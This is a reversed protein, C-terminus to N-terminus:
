TETRLRRVEAIIRPLNEPANLGGLEAVACGNIAMDPSDTEFFLRDEPVRRALERVRTSRENLVAPGITICVGLEEYERWIELSCSAGHILIQPLKGSYARLVEAMESHAKVCHISVRRNYKEALDLQESFVKMQVERHPRLNDLGIEGVGAEPNAALLSELHDLWDDRGPEGVHWPHLGCSADVGAENKSIAIVREWDLPTTGCCGFRTVGARRARAMVAPLLAEPYTQLHVHADFRTASDQPM